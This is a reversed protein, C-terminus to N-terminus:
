KKLSPRAKFVSREDEKRDRRGPLLRYPREDFRGPAGEFTGFSGSVVRRRKEPPQVPGPPSTLLAGSTSPQAEPQATEPRPRKRTHALQALPRTYVGLPNIAASGRHFITSVNTPDRARLATIPAPVPAPRISLISNSPEPIHDIKCQARRVSAADVDEGLGERTGQELFSVKFRQARKRKRPMMVEGNVTESVIYTNVTGGYSKWVGIGNGFVTGVDREESNRKALYYQEFEANDEEETDQETDQDTDSGYQQEVDPSIAQPSSPQPSSNPDNTAASALSGSCSATDTGRDRKRFLPRKMNHATSPLQPRPAPEFWTPSLRDTGSCEFHILGLRYAHVYM